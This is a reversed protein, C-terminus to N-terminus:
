EGLQYVEIDDFQMIADPGVTLYVYGQQVDDDQADIVLDGDVTVQM